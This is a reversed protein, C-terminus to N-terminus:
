SPNRGIAELYAARMGGVQSIAHSYHDEIMRVSTGMMNALLAIPTRRLIAETAFTHRFSYLIVHDPNHGHERMWESVRKKALLNNLCQWAVSPLWRGGREAPFCYDGRRLNSKVLADLEDAMHIYRRTDARKVKTENKHHNLVLMKDAPRYEARTAKFLEEPRAGTLSLALALQKWATSGGELLMLKLAPPLVCEEGRARERHHDNPIIKWLPNHSCYGQELNWNFCAKLRKLAFSKTTENWPKREDIYNIIMRSTIRSVDIHGMRDSLDRFLDRTVRATRTPRRELHRYWRGLALGLTQDTPDPEALQDILADFARMAARYNPGDPSDDVKCTYLLRKQGKYGTFFGGAGRTPSFWIKAKRGM